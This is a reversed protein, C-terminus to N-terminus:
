FQISWSAVGEIQPGLSLSSLGAFDTRGFQIPKNAFSAFLNFSGFSHSQHSLGLRYSFAATDNSLIDNLIKATASAQQSSVVDINWSFNESFNQKFSLTYITLDNLEFKPSIVGNFANIFSQSYASNNISERNIKNRSYYIKEASLSLQSKGPMPRTLSLLVQSPLDNDRSDIYRQSIFGFESMQIRSQYSLSADINQPLKQSFNLQYGTGRNSSWLAKDQSIMYATSSAFNLSGLNDDLFRQQVLVAAVGMSTNGLSYRYSPTYYDQQILRSYDNETYKGSRRFTSAIQNLAFPSAKISETSFSFYLKSNNSAFSEILNESFFVPRQSTFNISNLNLSRNNFTKLFRSNISDISLQEFYRPNIRNSIQDKWQGLYM